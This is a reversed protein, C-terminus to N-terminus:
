GTIATAQSWVVQWAEDRRRYCDTHWCNIGPGDDFSIRARYRLVVIEADGLVAMESVPEFVQYRLQGSAIACLYDSNTMESGNPTILWYDEAHLSAATVADARVLARLRQREINPLLTAASAM